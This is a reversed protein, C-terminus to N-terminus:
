VKVQGALFLIKKKEEREGIISLSSLPSFFRQVRAGEPALRYLLFTRRERRGAKERREQLKIKNKGRITKLKEFNM